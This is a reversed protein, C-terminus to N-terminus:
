EKKDGIFFKGVAFSDIKRKRYELVKSFIQQIDRYIHDERVKFLPRDPAGDKTIYTKIGKNALTEQYRKAKGETSFAGFQIVFIRNVKLSDNVEPEKDISAAEALKDIPKVNKEAEPTNQQPPNSSLTKDENLPPNKPMALPVINKDKNDNNDKGDTNKDPSENKPLDKPKNFDDTNTNNNGEKIVTVRVYAVGEDLFGLEQAAKYSLDLIRGEVFPGRDNVKVVVTKNNSLNTVKLLTGFPLFKHAATLDMKNFIEGSATKKGDFGEGYYSALGSIEKKSYAYSGNLCLLLTLLSVIKRM